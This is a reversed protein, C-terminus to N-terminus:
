DIRCDGDDEERSELKPPFFQDVPFQIREFIDCPNDSTMECEKSPICFDYVPVIMQVQRELQVISFIGITVTIYRGPEVNEFSGEFQRAVSNPICVGCEMNPPGCESIECSLLMPQAVQLRVKPLYKPTVYDQENQDSTFVKVSAESGFLIVKKSAVALGCVQVAPNLPTTCVDLKVVFFYTIDVSYFGQNFPVPEVCLYANIVDVSRAKVSQASDIIPQVVDTFYVRLDELCDKDGCSDYIRAADICVAEKFATTDATSGCGVSTSFSTAANAACNAAGFLNDAM